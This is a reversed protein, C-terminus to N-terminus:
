KVQTYMCPHVPVCMKRAVGLSCKSAHLRRQWCTKKLNESWDWRVCQDHWKKENGCIYVLHVKQSGMHQSWIQKIYERAIGWYKSKGRRTSVCSEKEAPLLLRSQFSWTLRQLKPVYRIRQQHENLNGFSQADSWNANFRSQTIHAYWLNSRYHTFFISIRSVQYVYMCVYMCAYMCVYSTSSKSTCPELSVEYETMRQIM